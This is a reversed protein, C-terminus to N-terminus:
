LAKTPTGQHFIMQWQEGTLKWISSRLSYQMSDRKLLRFTTLVVHPALLKIEFDTITMEGVTEENPLSDITIEKNFVRGSSGFEVFDHALLEELEVVSKRVDSQLLKEELGYLHEKLEIETM